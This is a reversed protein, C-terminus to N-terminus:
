RWSRGCGCVASRWGAFVAERSAGVVRASNLSPKGVAGRDIEPRAEFRWRSYSLRLRSCRVICLVTDETLRRRAM